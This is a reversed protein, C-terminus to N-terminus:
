EPLAMMGVMGVDWRSTKGKKQDQQNTQQQLTHESSMIVVRGTCDKTQENDMCVLKLVCSLCSAFFPPIRQYVEAYRRPETTSFLTVVVMNVPLFCQRLMM